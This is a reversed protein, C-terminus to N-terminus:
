CIINEVGNSGVVNHEPWYHYCQLFLDRYEAFTKHESWFARVDDCGMGCPINIFPAPGCKETIWAPSDEVFYKKGDKLTVLALAHNHSWVENDFVQTFRYIKDGYKDLNYRLGFNEPLNRGLRFHVRRLVREFKCTFFPIFFADDLVAFEASYDKESLERKEAEAAQAFCLSVYEQLKCLDTKM